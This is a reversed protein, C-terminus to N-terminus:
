TKWNQHKQRENARSLNEVRKEIKSLRVYLIKGALSIGQDEWRTKMNGLEM